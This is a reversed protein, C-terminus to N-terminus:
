DILIQDSALLLLTELVEATDMQSTDVEIADDAPRLPSLARQSDLVDRSEIEHLVQSLTITKGKKRQECFRRRAREALSAVMYIKLPADPLVVTGIDRGAMVIGRKEANGTGYHLGIRRQQECLAERVPRHASIISVNREIMPSRLQTTVELGDIHVHCYIGGTLVSQDDETVPVITIEITRALEGILIADHLNLGEELAAWTVARYMIGTDFFLFDLLHALGHGITSKGAGAPGDIAIIAPRMNRIIQIEAASYATSLESLTGSKEGEGSKEELLDKNITTEGSQSISEQQEEM